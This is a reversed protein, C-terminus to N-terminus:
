QDPQLVRLYNESESRKGMKYSVAAVIVVILFYFLNSLIHRSRKTKIKKKIDDVVTQEEIKHSHSKVANQKNLNEKANNSKNLGKSLSNKYSHSETESDSPAKVIKEVIDKKKQMLKAEEDEKKEKDGFGFFDLFPLFSQSDVRESENKHIIRHPHINRSHMSNRKSIAKLISKMEQVRPDNSHIKRHVHQVQESPEETTFDHSATIFITPLEEDFAYLLNIFNYLM